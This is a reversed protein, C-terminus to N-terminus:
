KEKQRNVGKLEKGQELVSDGRLRGRACDGHRSVPGEYDERTRTTKRRGERITIRENTPTKTTENRQKKKRNKKKTKKKERNMPMKEANEANMRMRHARSPGNVNVSENSGRFGSRRLKDSTKRGGGGEM